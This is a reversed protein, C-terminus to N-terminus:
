NLYKEIEELSTIENLIYRDDVIVTPYTEIELNGIFSNLSALNSDAAIPILIVKGGHKQKLDFLIKGWVNQTAKQALNDTEYEYLFIIISFSKNCREFTKVSNAWLLTRMLDYKKHALKLDETIRGAGEYLELLKAEDYIRDAFELNANILADCSMNELSIVNSLATIDMLSIESLAYYEEIEIQRSAEYSIGFLIGIGFILITVLLAEWFVHKKSKLM